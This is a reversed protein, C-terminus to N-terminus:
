KNYISTLKNNNNLVQYHSMLRYFKNHQNNINIVLIQYNIALSLQNKSLLPKIKIKHINMQM